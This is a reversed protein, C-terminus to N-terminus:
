EQGRPKITASRSALSYSDHLQRIVACFDNREREIILDAFHVIQALIAEDTKKYNGSRDLPANILGSQVAFLELREEKTM